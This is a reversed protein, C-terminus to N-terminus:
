LSNRLANKRPSTVRSTTTLPEDGLYACRSCYYTEIVPYPTVRAQANPKDQGPTRTCRGEGNCALGHCHCEVDDGTLKGM